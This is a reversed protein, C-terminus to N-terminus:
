QLRLLIRVARHKQKLFVNFEIFVLSKNRNVTSVNDKSKQWMLKTDGRKLWFLLCRFNKLIYVSLVLINVEPIDPPVYRLVQFLSFSGLIGSVTNRTCVSMNYLQFFHTLSSSVVIYFFTNSFLLPYFWLLVPVSSVDSNPSHLKYTKCLRVIRNVTWNEICKYPRFQQYSFIPAYTVELPNILFNM